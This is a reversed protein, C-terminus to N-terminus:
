DLKFSDLSYDFESINQKKVNLYMMLFNDDVVIIAFKRNSILKIYEVLSYVGIQELTERFEISSLSKLKVDGMIKGNPIYLSVIRQESDFSLENLFYYSIVKSNNKMTNLVSISFEKDSFLDDDAKSSVKTDNHFVIFRENKIQKEDRVVSCSFVFFLSFLFIYFFRM